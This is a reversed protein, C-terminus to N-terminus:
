LGLALLKLADTNAVTVLGTEAPNRVASAMFKDRFVNGGYFSRARREGQTMEEEFMSSLSGIKALGFAGKEKGSLSKEIVRYIVWKSNDVKDERSQSSQRQLLSTDKENWCPYEGKSDGEIDKSPLDWPECKNLEVQAIAKADFSSNLLKNSLYHTILEEDTPHLRFCPPLEM